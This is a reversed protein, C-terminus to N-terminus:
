IESNKEQLKYVLEEKIASTEKKRSKDYNDKVETFKDKFTRLELEKGQIM